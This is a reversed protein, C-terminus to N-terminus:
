QQPVGAPQSASMARHRQIYSLVMEPDVGAKICDIIIKAETADRERDDKLLERQQDFQTKLQQNQISAQAKQMEAQALLMAPDPKEDKPPQQAAQQAMAQAEEASVIYRDPMRGAVEALDELTNRVKDFSFLPNQPGMKELVTQQIQLFTNLFLAREEANGNGLGVNISVDMDPNWTRPDMPVWQNRLRVTRAQDQYRTVLALILKFMRKWGTEAFIRAIMEVRSQAQQVLASSAIRSVSQLADADIGMSASNQGTREQKVEGMMQYAQAAMQPASKDTVLPQVANVDNALIIGGVTNEMLKALDVGGNRAVIQRPTIVQGLGDLWLRLLHTRILQIDDVCDAMSEGIATHPEPSPCFDAFPHDDVVEEKMVKHADGATCVKRMELIGDGDADILTYAEVYLVERMAPDGDAGDDDGNYDDQRASKEGNLELDDGNGALSLMEDFDYGMAVLDGVRKMCRHGILSPREFSKASRSIILEEPPMAEVCVKGARKIEKLTYSHKLIPPLPQGMPDIGGPEETMEHDAIEGDMTAHAQFTADDVNQYRKATVRAADDWWVKVLGTKRILADKFVSYAIMFGPNDSRFILNAYDTAQKAAQEDEPGVPNFEVAKESALFIRLLSPMIAEVTDRVDRSVVKSRGEVSPLEKSVDGKAFRTARERDSAISGDVYAIADRIRSAVINQFTSDDMTM